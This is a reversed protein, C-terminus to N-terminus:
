RIVVGAVIYVLGISCTSVFLDLVGAVGFSVFLLHLIFGLPHPIPKLAPSPTKLISSKRLQFSRSKPWYAPCKFLCLTNRPNKKHPTKKKMIKLLYHNKEVSAVGDVM